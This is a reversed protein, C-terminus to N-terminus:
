LKIIIYGKVGWTKSIGNRIQAIHSDETHVADFLAKLFNDLDPTQTHFQGDMEKIKKKSWSKPMPIVFSISEISTPIETLGVWLSHAKIEKKFDYYKHIKRAKSQYIKKWEHPEKNLLFLTKQTVRLYAVPAVPIIFTKKPVLKAEPLPKEEFKELFEEELGTNSLKLKGKNGPQIIGQKLLKQFEASDMQDPIINKSSM